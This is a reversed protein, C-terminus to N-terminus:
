EWQFVFRRIRVGPTGIQVLLEVIPLQLRLLRVKCKQRRKKSTQPASNLTMRLPNALRIRDSTIIAVTIFMGQNYARLKVDGAGMTSETAMVETKIARRVLGFSISCSITPLQEGVLSDAGFSAPRVNGQAEIVQVAAKLKEVSNRKKVLLENGHGDVVGDPEPARGLDSSGISRKAFPKAPKPM